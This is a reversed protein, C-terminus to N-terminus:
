TSGTVDIVHTLNKPIFGDQVIVVEPHNHSQLFLSNLCADLYSPSEGSYLSLLVSVNM